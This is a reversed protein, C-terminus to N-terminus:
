QKYGKLQVAAEELMRKLGDGHLESPNRMEFTVLGGGVRLELTRQSRDRERAGEKFLRDLANDRQRELAEIEHRQELTGNFHCWRQASAVHYQQTLLVSVLVGVVIGILGIM